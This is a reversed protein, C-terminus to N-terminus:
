DTRGKPYVIVARHELGQGIVLQHVELVDRLGSLAASVVKQHLRCSRQSEDDLLSFIKAIDEPRRPAVSDYAAAAASPNKGHLAQVAQSGLGIAQALAVLDDDKWGRAALDPVDLDADVIVVRAQHSAAEQALQRADARIDSLGEPATFDGAALAPRAASSLVWLAALIIECAM